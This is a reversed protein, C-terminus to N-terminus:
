AKFAVLRADTGASSVVEKKALEPSAPIYWIPSSYVREQTTMEEATEPDFRRHGNM